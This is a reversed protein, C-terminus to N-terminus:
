YKRKPSLTRTKKLPSKNENPLIIETPNYSQHFTTQKLLQELNKKTANDIRNRRIEEIAEQVEEKKYTSYPYVIFTTNQAQEESMEEYDYTASYENTKFEISNVQIQSNPIGIIAVNRGDIRGIRYSYTTATNLKKVEDLTYALPLLPEYDLTIQSYKKIILPHKNIFLLEDEKNNKEMCFAIFIIKQSKEKIKAYQEKEKDTMPVLIKQIEPNDPNFITKKSIIHKIEAHLINIGPIYLLITDLLNKEKTLKNKEEEFKKKDIKYGNKAIELLSNIETNLEIIQTITISALEGIIGLFLYM